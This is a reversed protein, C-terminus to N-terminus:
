PADGTALRELFAAFALDWEALRRWADPLLRLLLTFGDPPAGILALIRDLVDSTTQLGFAHGRIYDPSQQCLDPHTSAAEGDAAAANTPALRLAAAEVFAAEHEWTDIAIAALAPYAGGAGTPAHKLSLRLHAGAARLAHACGRMAEPSFAFIPHTM